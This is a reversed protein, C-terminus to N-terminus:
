KRGRIFKLVDRGVSYIFAAVGVVFGVAVLGGAIVFIAVAFYAGGFIAFALLALLVIILAAKM